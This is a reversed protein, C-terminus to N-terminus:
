QVGHSLFGVMLGVFDPHLWEDILGLESGNLDSPLYYSVVALLRMSNNVLSHDLTITLINRSVSLQAEGLLLHSAIDMVGASGPPMPPDSDYTYSGHTSFVIRDWMGDGDADFYFDFCFRDQSSLPIPEAVQLNLRLLGQQPVELSVQVIDVFNTPGFWTLADTATNAVADGTYDGTPDTWFQSSQNTLSSAILVFGLVGVFGVAIAFYKVKYSSQTLFKM